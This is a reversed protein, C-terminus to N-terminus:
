VQFFLPSVLAFVQLFFSAMLVESLLHRYKWIAGLFWTLDFRRALELLGARTTILLLRGDWEAEFETRTMLRPRAGPAQVLAKEADTKAILLFGGSKLAAIGPLPTHVLRPWATHLIRAKLGLEKALRLMDELGIAAGGFRHKIQGADAAIGKLALLM